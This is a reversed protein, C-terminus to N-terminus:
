AEASVAEENPPRSTRTRNPLGIRSLPWTRSGPLPTRRAFSKLLVTRVVPPMSHTSLGFDARWAPTTGINAQTKALLDWSQDLVAEDEGPEECRKPQPGLSGVHVPWMRAPHSSPALDLSAHYREESAPVVSVNTAKKITSTEALRMCNLKPLPGQPMM